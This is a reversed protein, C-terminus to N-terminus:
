AQRFNAMRRVAKERKVAFRDSTEKVKVQIAEEWSDKAIPRLTLKM